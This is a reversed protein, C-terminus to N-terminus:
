PAPVLGRLFYAARCTRAEALAVEAASAGSRVEIGLRDRFWATADPTLEAECWDTAEPSAKFFPDGAPGEIPSVGPSRWRDFTWRCAQTYEGPDDGPAEGFSETGADEEEGMGLADVAPALFAARNEDAYCWDWQEDSLSWLEHALRCLAATTPDALDVVAGDGAPGHPLGMLRAASAVALPGTMSPIGDTCSSAEANTLGRPRDGAGLGCSTAAVVVVVAAALRITWSHM